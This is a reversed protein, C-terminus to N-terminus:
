GLTTGLWQVLGPVNEIGKSILSSTLDKLAEGGMAKVKQKVSAKTDDSEPTSDVARCLLAKITNGDLFSPPYGM